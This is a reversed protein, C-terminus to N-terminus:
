EVVLPLSESHSNFEPAYMCQIEAMGSQYQGRHVVRTSYEFVYVGKPLYDMFFHSATDRTSEYYGLGDQYRYGSLVNVPELGSGRQDKLHVYEMDRDTRLEIRVVLEDGVKLPGKVAELVPGRKTTTRVYLTKKLKLPTGEYPTVKTMDEMYQWNVSGWAVGPDAKKVEIRGFAPKIEAPQFRKEYFGTGAEVKEPAIAVGALSVEVLADSTLDNAGRLLLAYVADATAKTTKWDQTQKQKLLWVKCGEVAKADGMVEDFAEIMLAQTEIPARYWWWSLEEDRWFMGLEEDTVAHEQISKMIDTATPKDGFRLLALALHGESQRCGVKLWYTRAQGLFYDVAEKANPAIPTDKLFFSRGYLYLAITSSLHNENKTEPHKLIERYMEDIWTDLRGLSRIAPNVKIDVGLHRLRGFGTTIYLTIYECGQGGPFWPWMGNGLQMEGLKRLGKETENNLRNDDFLIGVNKRAQSESLAQQLWPTEELMVAKLDQNKELPSDLAPTNKWQDFVKRIKPDSLAISRALSNAYLRNFIQESCEYPYEMLYPLAMVAYWSPNSVMQVDLTQNRLTDSKGSALLKAFDFKKTAPGRIPLPLSETVLIRRSLVPLYGEEGDSVRGTSGVAKYSLFGMGDPVEIRWSFSHSEKSPIDFDLEPKKNGLARDVSQETRADNFTLRVSGTQRAATQNSVKVTFELVDGERLFRPPNPQVMLDKATVTRGELLGSRMQADHAFGLFRWQTLAEPMTFSMKVVGNSDSMLQPFFFATENLNNRASVQSLDPGKPRASIGHDIGAEAKRPMAAADKDMAGAMQLSNAARATQEEMRDSGLMGAAEPAAPVSARLMQKYEGGARGNFGRGGGFGYGVAWLNGVLEPLFGRYSVTADVYPQGWSVQLVQFGKVTNAFTYGPASGEQRFCTFGPIWNEKVFADLSEDYLAAVMEAVAKEAKPGSVVATWSEKQDPELKSTFHEWKLDLKKNTWPVMVQRNECYSRNERVYTVRVSFGGRMPETVTQKVAAQTDGPKTWYSQICKGRHEIEVYARGSDYGTGWLAMFEEGPEMTWKPAAFFHPVKLGLATGAPNVVTLPLRSTVKKKFRDQTELMVRYNGVGLKFKLTQEGKTDTSFPKEVAVDALDWTNPDAPDPGDEYGLRARPVKAPDKLRHIKLTGEASQPEGDLTTTKLVLETEKDSTLWDGATLTAQLATYGVTIIREASRTEGATDTVDAYVQFVFTPENTPSISLDPKATFEVAFAGDAATEAAGNAIEQDQMAPQPYWRCYCWWWPMRVQRVVRYKVKAGDVAAGTYALATGKVKVTDSLRAATAPAELTVQFKPRKYEEVTVAASGTPGDIARLSMRGMLRDRPAVFSGAFSGYDNCQQPQKAIEKGNRDSFVVTLTRGTLLKYDDQERNVSLCIGKYQVTQGPRYIARDTFFLTQESTHDPRRRGSNFPQWAGVEGAEHRARLVVSNFAQEGLAIRFVGNSDTEAKFDKALQAGNAWGWGRADITAGKVPEGSNAQLVFGVIEEEGGRTLMTLDSVWVGTYSIQNDKERFGADHSAAIFYFGPKLTAPAPLQEVREKYDSTPPLAASWELTVPKGLLENVSQVNEWGWYGGQKGAQEMWDAAFARFYVNTVNLYHVAIKPWPANWIRETQIQVTKAEIEAILNRCNKGGPSAAFAGAGVAAVKHAALPDGERKLVQAWHYRALASLEHDGWRQVLAELAAKFRANKGDGRAANYGYLLRDLDASIFAYPDKADKHFALLDQYLRIAKLGPSEADTTAPKWPMFKDAPAFIDSDAAIEFADQPKAAAQESSTYFKLAEQAIFDYLTPRCADPMTGKPLLADFTSVPIKKIVDASALVKGFQTDIENFLRPLDWTQIDKGPAQATATRQMFRWRNVQFYQWYWDALVTQLVPAIERPAKAIEAEMRGIREEPKSGQIEGELAIKKTIAKAAEGYARDKLAGAVIPELADIASQPLGKQVAEDVKKWQAVRQTADLPGTAQVAAPAAVPAPDAAFSQGLGLVSLCLIRITLNKM